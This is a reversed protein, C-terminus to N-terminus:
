KSESKRAGPVRNTLAEVIEKNRWKELPRSAEEPHNRERFIRVLDAKLTSGPVHGHNNGNNPATVL